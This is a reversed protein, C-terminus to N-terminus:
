HDLRDVRSVVELYLVTGLDPGILRMYHQLMGVTDPLVVLCSLDASAPM